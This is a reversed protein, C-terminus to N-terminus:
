QNWPTYLCLKDGPYVHPLQGDPERPVLKPTLVTVAPPEWVRYQIRVTYALSRSTPQVEGVAVLTGGEIRSRFCPCASRMRGLQDRVSFIRRPGYRHAM